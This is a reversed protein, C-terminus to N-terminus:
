ERKSKMENIEEQLLAIKLEQEKIATVLIPVLGAYDIGLYGNDDEFVVEPFIQRIEQASFGIREREEVQEIVKERKSSVSDTSFEVSSSVNVLNYRFINVKSLKESWNGMSLSEVNRKLRMDSSYITSNVRIIEALMLVIRPPVEILEWKGM